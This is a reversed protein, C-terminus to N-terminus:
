RVPETIIAYCVTGDRDLYPVVSHLQRDRPLSRLQRELDTFKAIAPAVAISIEYRM